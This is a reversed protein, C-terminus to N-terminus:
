EGFLDVFIKSLAPSNQNISNLPAMKYDITQDQHAKLGM